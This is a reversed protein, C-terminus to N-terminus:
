SWSSKRHGGIYPKIMRQANLFLYAGFSNAVIHADEHWYTSLLDEAIIEIQDTFGLMRFEGTTERGSIDFGRSLLGAGLGTSIRGGYGPLYHISKAMNITALWKSKRLNM